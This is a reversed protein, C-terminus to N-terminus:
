RVGITAIITAAIQSPSGIEPLWIAPAAAIKAPSSMVRKVGAQCSVGSWRRACFILCLFERDIPRKACGAGIEWEDCREDSDARLEGRFNTGTRNIM